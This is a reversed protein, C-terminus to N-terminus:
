SPQPERSQRRRMASRDFPRIPSAERTESPELSGAEDPRALSDERSPGAMPGSAADTHIVHSFGTGPAVVIVSCPALQMVETATNDRPTGAWPGYSRSGMFLVDIGNHAERVIVHSPHGHRLVTEHPLGAPLSGTAEDLRRQFEIRRWERLEEPAINRSVWWELLPVATILRLKAHRAQAFPLARALAQKSEASGDYAVGVVRVDLGKTAEADLPDLREDPPPEKTARHM